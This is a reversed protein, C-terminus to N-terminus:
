LKDLEGKLYTVCECRTLLGTGKGVRTGPVVWVKPTHTHGKAQLWSPGMIIANTSTAARQQSWENAAASSSKDDVLAAVGCVDDFMPCMPRAEFLYDPWDIRTCDNFPAELIIRAPHERRGSVVGDMWGLAIM